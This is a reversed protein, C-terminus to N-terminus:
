PRLMASEQERIRAAPNSRRAIRRLIGALVMRHPLYTLYWCARGVLGGPEFIASLRLVRDPGEGTLEFELWARGPVKMEVAFRLRHHPEYAVVRMCDVADGVSLRDPDRRGRRLGIGGVMRDLAGRLRWLWDAYFWGTSGGICCVPEFAKERPGDALTAYLNLSLLGPPGPRLFERSGTQRLEQLRAQDGRGLEAESPKPRLDSMSRSSSEPRVQVCGATCSM